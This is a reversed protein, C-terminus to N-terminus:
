ALPLGVARFTRRVDRFHRKLDFCAALERRSVARSIDPDAAALEGVTRILGRALPTFLVGGFGLASVIIGTVLGRKDPYWKQCCAIVTSYIMGMGIGGVVGYTIWLM